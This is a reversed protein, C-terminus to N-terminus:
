LVCYGAAAGRSWGSLARPRRGARHPPSFPPPLPRNLGDAVIRVRGPWQGQYVCRDVTEAAVVSM